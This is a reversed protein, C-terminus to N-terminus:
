TWKLYKLCMIQNKKQLVMLFFYLLFNRLKVALFNFTLFPLHNAQLGCSIYQYFVYIAEELNSDLQKKYLFFQKRGLYGINKRYFKGKTDLKLDKKGQGFVLKNCKHLFIHIRVYNHKYRKRDLMEIETQSKGWVWRTQNHSDQSHCHLCLLLPSGVM